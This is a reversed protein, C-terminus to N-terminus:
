CRCSSWFSRDALPSAGDIRAAELGIHRTGAAGGGGHHLRVADVALHRDRVIAFFALQPDALWAHMGFGVLSLFLQRARVPHRVSLALDPRGRDARDHLAARLHHPVGGHRPDAEGAAARARHRRGDRRHRRIRLIRADRRALDVGRSRRADASLSRHWAMERPSWPTGLAWEYFALPADVLPYCSGGALMLRRAAVLVAVRRRSVPASASIWPQPVGRRVDGLRSARSRREVKIYGARQM